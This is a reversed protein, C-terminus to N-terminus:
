ARVLLISSALLMQAGFYTVINFVKIQRNENHGGLLMVGLSFDSMFFMLGGLVLWILVLIRNENGTGFYTIGLTVSKILMTLLFFGYLFTLAKLFPTEFHFKKIMIYGFIIFMIVFAVIEPITVYGYDANFVPIARIFAIIYALHGIMFSGGGTLFYQMNSKAHLFYDGIWGLVLGIVMTIAYPTFNDAIFMSLIGTCVFATSCIMKLKLSKKNPRPWFAKLYLPTFIIEIIVCVALLVKYIM